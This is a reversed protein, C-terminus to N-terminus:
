QYFLEDNLYVDVLDGDVNAYDRCFFVWLMPTAVIIETPSTEKLLLYTM